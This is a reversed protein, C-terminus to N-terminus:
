LAIITAASSKTPLLPSVVEEPHQEVCDCVSIVGEPQQPFMSFLSLASSGDEQQPEGWGAVHQGDSVSRLGDLLQQPCYSKFIVFLEIIQNLESNMFDNM